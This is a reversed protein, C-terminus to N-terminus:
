GCGRTGCAADYIAVSGGVVIFGVLAGTAAHALVDGSNSDGAKIATYLVAGGVAGLLGWKLWRPMGSSTAVAVRENFPATSMPSTIFAASAQTHTIGASAIRQASATAPILIAAAVLLAKMVKMYHEM